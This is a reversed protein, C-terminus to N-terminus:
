YHFLAPIDVFWAILLTLLVLASILLLLWDPKKPDEEYMYKSKPRTKSPTAPGPPFFPSYPQIATKETMM